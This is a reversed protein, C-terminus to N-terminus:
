RHTMGAATETEGLGTSVSGRGSIVISSARSSGVSRSSRGMATNGCLGMAEYILDVTALQNTSIRNLVARVEM